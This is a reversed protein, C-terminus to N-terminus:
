WRGLRKEATRYAENDARLGIVIVLMTEETRELKYIIRIGAAKLKIKLCDSLKDRLEVGYGGEHRPLPNKSVRELAKVIQRKNSTDFGDFDKRAKETYRIEWASM